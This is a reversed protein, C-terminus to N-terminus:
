PSPMQREKGELDHGQIHGHTDPPALSPHKWSEAVELVSGWAGAAVLETEAGPIKDGEWSLLSGLQPVRHALSLPTHSGGFAGGTDAKIERVGSSPNQVQDVLGEGLGLPCACGSCLCGQLAARGAVELYLSGTQGCLFGSPVPPLHHRPGSLLLPISGVGLLPARPTEACTRGEWFCYLVPVPVQSIVARLWPARFLCHRGRKSDPCTLTM